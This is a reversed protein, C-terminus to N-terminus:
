LSTQDISRAVIEERRAVTSKMGRFRSINKFRPAFICLLTRPTTGFHWRLNEHERVCIGRCTTKELFTEGVKGSERCDDRVVISFSGALM